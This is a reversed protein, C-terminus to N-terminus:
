PAALSLLYSRSVSANRCPAGLACCSFCASACENLETFTFSTGSAGDFTVLAIEAAAATALAASASKYKNFEITGCPGAQQSISGDAVAYGVDSCKGSDLGGASVVLSRPCVGVFSDICSDACEGNSIKRYDQCSSSATFALSAALSAALM